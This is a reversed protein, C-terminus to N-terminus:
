RSAKFFFGFASSNIRADNFPGCTTCAAGAAPGFVTLTNGSITLGVADTAVSPSRRL